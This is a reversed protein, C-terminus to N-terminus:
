GAEPTNSVLVPDQALRQLISMAAQVLTDDKGPFEQNILL